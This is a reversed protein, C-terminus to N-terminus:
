EQGMSKSWINPTKENNQNEIARQRTLTSFIAERVRIATYTNQETM